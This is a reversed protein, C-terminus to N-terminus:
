PADSPLEQSARRGGKRAACAGGRGEYGRGEYGDGERGGERGGERPIMRAHGKDGEERREEENKFRQL